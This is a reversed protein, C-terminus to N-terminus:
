NKTFNYENKLKIDKIDTNINNDVRDKYREPARNKLYFIMATVNGNIASKFLANEVMDISKDRGKKIAAAIKPDKNMWDYVTTVSIGMKAAIDKIYLGQTSWEELLQLKEVTGWDTISPQTVNKQRGRSGLEVKKM